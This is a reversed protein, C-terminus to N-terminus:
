FVKFLCFFDKEKVGIIGEVLVNLNSNKNKFELLKKEWKLPLSILILSNKKTFDFLNYDNLLHFSDFCVILDFRQKSSFNETLFYEIQNSRPAIAKEDIDIGVVKKFVFNEQKLFGYFWAKGIGLDLVTFDKSLFNKILPFLEVYKEQQLPKWSDYTEFLPM